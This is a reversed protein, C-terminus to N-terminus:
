LKGSSQSSASDSGDKSKTGPLPPLKPKLLSPPQTSSPDSSALLPSKLGSIPQLRPRQTRPRHQAQAQLTYANPDAPINAVGAVLGTQQRSQVPAGLAPAAGQLGVGAQDLPGHPSPRPLSLYGIRKSVGLGAKPTPIRPRGSSWSLREYAELLPQLQTTCAARICLLVTLQPM